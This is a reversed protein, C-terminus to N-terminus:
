QNIIQNSEKRPLDYMCFFMGYPSYGLQRCFVSADANDWFDSCITGWTGDVCIEVGYGRDRNGGHIRVALNTCAQVYVTNSLYLCLVLDLLVAILM